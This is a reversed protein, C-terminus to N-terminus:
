FGYKATNPYPLKIDTETTTYQRLGIALTPPTSFSIQGEEDVKLAAGIAISKIQGITYICGNNLNFREVFELSIAYLYDKPLPHPCGEVHYTAVELVDLEFTGEPANMSVEHVVSVQNFPMCILTLPSGNIFNNLTHRKGNDPRFLVSIQAPHASVHTVNSLTSANLRGNSDATIGIFATRVGSLSNILTTRVQREM